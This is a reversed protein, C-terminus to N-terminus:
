CWRCPLRWASVGFSVITKMNDLDVGANLDWYEGSLPECRPHVALHVDERKIRHHRHHHHHRFATSLTASTLLLFSVFSHLNLMASKPSFLQSGSFFLFSVVDCNYSARCHRVVSTSMSRSACIKNSSPLRASYYSWASAPNVLERIVGSIPATRRM